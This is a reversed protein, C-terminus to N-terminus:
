CYDFMGTRNLGHTCHILIFKQPNEEIFKDICQVIVDMENVMTLISHNKGEDLLNESSNTSKNFHHINMYFSQYKMEPPVDNRRYYDVCCLDIIMGICQGYTTVFYEELLKLSVNNPFPYIQPSLPCKLPILMTNPIAEGILPETQIWGKPVKPSKKTMYNILVNSSTHNKNNLHDNEQIMNENEVMSNLTTIYEKRNSISFPYKLQQFNNESSSKTSTSSTEMKRKKSNKQRSSQQPHYFRCSSGFKCEGSVFYRCVVTPKNSHNKKKNLTTMPSSNEIEKDNDQQNMPTNEESDNLAVDEESDMIGGSRELLSNDLVISFSNIMFHHHAKEEVFLTSLAKTSKKIKKQLIKEFRNLM